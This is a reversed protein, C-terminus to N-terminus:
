EGTNRSFAEPCQGYPNEWDVQWKGFHSTALLLLRDGIELDPNEGAIIVMQGVVQDWYENYGRVIKLAVHGDEHVHEIRACVDAIPNNQLQWRVILALGIFMIMAFVLAGLILLPLSVNVTRNM